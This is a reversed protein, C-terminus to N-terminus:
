HTDLTVKDPAPYTVKNKCSLRDELDTFRQASKTLISIDARDSLGVNDFLTVQFALMKKDKSKEALDPRQCDVLLEARKKDGTKSVSYSTARGDKREAAPFTSPGWNVTVRFLTRKASEDRIACPGGASPKSTAMRKNMNLSVMYTVDDGARPETVSRVAHDREAEAVAQKDFIGLCSKESLLTLDPNKTHDDHESKSDGDTGSCATIAFALLCTLSTLPRSSKVALHSRQM